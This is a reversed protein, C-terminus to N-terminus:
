KKKAAEVNLKFNDFKSSHLAVFDVLGEISKDLMLELAKEESYEIPKGGSEINKWGLLCTRALCELQLEEFAKETRAEREKKADGELGDTDFIVRKALLASALLSNWKKDYSDGKYRGIKLTIGSKWVVDIGANVKELDVRLNNLEM